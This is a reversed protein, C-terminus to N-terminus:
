TPLVSSKYFKGYQKAERFGCQINPVVKMDSLVYVLTSDRNFMYVGTFGDNLQQKRPFSSGKNHFKLM